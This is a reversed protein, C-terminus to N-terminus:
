GIFAPSQTHFSAKRPFIPVSRASPWNRHNGRVLGGHIFHSGPIPVAAESALAPGLEPFGDLGALATYVRLSLEFTQNSAPNQQHVSDQLCLKSPSQLRSILNRYRASASMPLLITWPWMTRIEVARASPKWDRVRVSPKKIDQNSGQMDFAAQFSSVSHHM